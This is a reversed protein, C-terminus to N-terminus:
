SVVPVGVRRLVERFEALPLGALRSSARIRGTEIYYKVAARLRPPLEEIGRWDAMRRRLERLESEGRLLAEVDEAM